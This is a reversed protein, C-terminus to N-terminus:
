VRVVGGDSSHLIDCGVGNQAIPVYCHSADTCAIGTSITAINPAIIQWDAVVVSTAALALAFRLM